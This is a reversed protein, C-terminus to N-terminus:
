KIFNKLNFENNLFKEPFLDKVSVIGLLKDLRGEAVPYVSHIKGKAKARITDLNDNADFWVVILVIVVSVSHAYPCSSL